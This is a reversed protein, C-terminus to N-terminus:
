YKYFEMYLHVIQNMLLFIEDFKKELIWFELFSM